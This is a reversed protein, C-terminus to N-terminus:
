PVEVRAVVVAVDNVAVLAVEELKKAVSRLAVVPKKVFRVAVLAVDVLKKAVVRLAIVEVILVYFEGHFRVFM